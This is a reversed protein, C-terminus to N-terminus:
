GVAALKESLITFQLPTLNSCTPAQTGTIHVPFRGTLFSRRTPSCWLYTHHRDLTIGEQALAQMHPTYSINKANGRRISSDDFGLDDVLITIIHPQKQGPPLPTPTPKAPRPVPVCPIPPTPPPPGQKCNANRCGCTTNM